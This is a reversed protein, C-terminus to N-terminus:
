SFLSECAFSLAMHAVDLLMSVSSLVCFYNLIAKWTEEYSGGELGNHRVQKKLTGSKDSRV